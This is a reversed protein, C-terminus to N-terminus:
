KLLEVTEGPSLCPVLMMNHDHRVTITRGDALRLMNLCHSVGASDPSCNADTLVRASVPHKPANGAVLVVQATNGSTRALLLVQGPGAMAPTAFTMWACFAALLGLITRKM